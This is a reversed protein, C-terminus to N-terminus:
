QHASPVLLLMLFGRISMFNEYLFHSNSCSEEGYHVASALYTAWVEVEFDDVM